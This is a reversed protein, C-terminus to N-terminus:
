CVPGPQKHRVCHQRRGARVQGARFCSCLEPSSPQGVWSLLEASRSLLEALEAQYLALAPAATLNHAPKVGAWGDDGVSTILPAQCGAAGDLQAGGAPAPGLLRQAAATIAAAEELLARPKGPRLRRWAPEVGLAQGKFMLVSALLLCAVIAVRTTSASAARAPM